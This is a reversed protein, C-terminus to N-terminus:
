KRSAPQRQSSKYYGARQVGKPAFQTTSPNPQTQNGRYQQMRAPVNLRLSQTHNLLIRAQPQAPTVEPAPLEGAQNNRFKPASQVEETSSEGTLEPANLEEIESAAAQPAPPMPTPEGTDQRPCCNPDAPALTVTCKGVHFVKGPCYPSDAPFYLYGVLGLSQESSATLKDKLREAVEPLLGAIEYENSNGKLKAVVSHSTLKKDKEYTVEVFVQAEAPLVGPPFQLNSVMSPGDGVLASLKRNCDYCAPVTTATPKWSFGAETSVPEDPKAQEPEPVVPVLLHSSVGYPTAVHLDVVKKIGGGKGEKYLMTNVNYPITVQMIQRSLLTFPVCRGGAIVKTEHVSFRDGTLFLTTGLCAGVCQVYRTSLNATDVKIQNTSGDVSAPVPYMYASSGYETPCNCALDATSAPAAGDNPPVSCKSVVIGPAGYWGDLAPGLDTVGASFLEFGGLTNEFPVQIQTTQLPLREELQHVVQSLMGIDEPRYGCGAKAQYVANQVASFNRSLKMTDNMTLRIKRPNTLGFWSARSELTVYPVFSPMIIVAMCERIGPELSTSNTDQDTTPGGMLLEPIVQLNSKTPPSQFRPYFRWGFTDHGHSFGVAKQVLAITEIQTDLKRQFRMAARASVNGSAVGAALAIQMERHRSYLDAVNEQDIVPDLAFVHIPWRCRVYENFAARAEPSPCPVCFDHMEPNQCPCGKLNAAEHMDQVLRENLLAAEVIISWALSATATFAARPFNEKINKFFAARLLDVSRTPDGSYTYDERQRIALALEPTAHSWLSSTQEQSLFQYASELEARLYAQVDTIHVFDHNPQFDLMPAAGVIVSALVNGQGYVTPIQSSPFPLLSRRPNSARDSSVVSRMTKFMLSNITRFESNIIAAADLRGSDEAEAGGEAAAAANAETLQSLVAQLNADIQEYSNLVKGNEYTGTSQNMANAARERRHILNQARDVVKLREVVEREGLVRTIGLALQDVIDNVILSRMTTPLLDDTLYPTATFTIEAGFGRRTCSGPLVSIPLRVLHLGYGPSDATDDGENIRRLEVLHHLYRNMEDLFVTPEVSVKATRFDTMRETKAEGPQWNILTGPPLKGDTEKVPAILNVASSEATTAAASSDAKGISMAIALAASDSRSLAGQLTDQFSWLQASLVREVEQRHKTYRAQGWVDPQKPVVTGYTEIEHELYDIEKALDEVPPYKCTHPKKRHLFSFAELVDVARAPQWCCGIQLFICLWAVTAQRVSM